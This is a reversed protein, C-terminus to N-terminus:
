SFEKLRLESACYQRLQELQDLTIELRRWQCNGPELGDLLSELPALHREFYSDEDEWKQLFEPYSMCRKPDSERLILLEGIARQQLQFVRLDSGRCPSEFGLEQLSLSLAKGVKDVEEKFRYADQQTEFLEYSFEEQIMRFWAFYQGFLYLTSSM